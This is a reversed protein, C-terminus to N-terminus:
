VLELLSAKAQSDITAWLNKEALILLAAKAFLQDHVGLRGSGIEEMMRQLSKGIAQRDTKCVKLEDPHPIAHHFLTKGQLFDSELKGNVRLWGKRLQRYLRKRIYLCENAPEEPCMRLLLRLVEENEGKDFGVRNLCQKIYLQNNGLSKNSSTRGSKLPVINLLECFDQVIDGNTWQESEYPRILINEKGFPKSWINLLSHYDYEFIQHTDYFQYASHAWQRAGKVDQNFFSSYLQDQRRLYVVIKIDHGQLTSLIQEHMLDINKAQGFFLESSVVVSQIQDRQEEIEKKLMAWAQGRPQDGYWFDAMRHNQHKEILDCVLLHHADGHRLSQPYLVGHQLLKKFNKSLINQLTSTATKPAGIHIYVTAM